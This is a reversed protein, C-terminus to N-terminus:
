WISESSDLAGRILPHLFVDVSHVFVNFVTSADNFALPRFKTGTLPWPALTKHM